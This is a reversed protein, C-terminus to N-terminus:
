WHSRECPVVAGKGDCGKCMEHGWVSSWRIGLHSCECSLVADTEVGRVCTPPAGGFAGTTTSAPCWRM